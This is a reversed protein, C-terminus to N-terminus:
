RTWEERMWPALRASKRAAIIRQRRRLLILRPVAWDAIACLAAFVLSIAGIAILTETM